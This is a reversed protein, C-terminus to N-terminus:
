DSPLLAGCADAGPTKPGIAVAIRCAERAATRDGGKERNLAHSHLAATAVRPELKGARVADAARPAIHAFDAASEESRRFIGPLRRTTAARVFRVELNEPAITVARDMMALGEKALRGKRWPAMAWSSELLFVSGRYALVLPDDPTTQRLKDLEAAARAGSAKDGDVAKYYLAKIAPLNQAFVTSCILLTVLFARVRVNLLHRRAGASTKRKNFVV